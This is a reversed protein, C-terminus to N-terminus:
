WFMEGTLSKYTLELRHCVEVQQLTEGTMDQMQMELTQALIAQGAITFPDLSPFNIEIVKCIFAEDKGEKLVSLAKKVAAQEIASNEIL